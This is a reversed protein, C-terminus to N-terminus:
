LRPRTSSSRSGGTTQIRVFRRCGGATGQPTPRIFLSPALSDIEPFPDRHRGAPPGACRAEAAARPAALAWPGSEDSQIESSPMPRGGRDPGNFARRLPEPSPGHPPFACKPSPAGRDQPAKTPQHTRRDIRPPWPRGADPPRTCAPSPIVWVLSSLRALCALAFASASALRLVCSAWGSRQLLCSFLFRFSFAFAFFSGGVCSALRM